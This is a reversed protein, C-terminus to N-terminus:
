AGLEGIADIRGSVSNDRQYEKLWTQVMISCSFVGHGTYQRGSSLLTSTISGWIFKSPDIHLAWLGVQAYRVRNISLDILVGAMTVLSGISLKCFEDRKQGVVDGRARSADNAFHRVVLSYRLLTYRLLSYRLLSHRLLSHWTM